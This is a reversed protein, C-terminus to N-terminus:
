DCRQTNLVTGIKLIHKQLKTQMIQLRFPIAVDTVHAGLVSKLESPLASYYKEYNTTAFSKANVTSTSNLSSAINVAEYFSKIKATAGEDSYLDFILIWTGAPVSEKSYVVKSEAITLSETEFGKKASTLDSEAYLAAKVAKVSEDLALNVNLSGNSEGFNALYLTFALNTTKGTEVTQKSLTGSYITSSFNGELYFDYKGAALSVSKEDNASWTKLTEYDSETDSSKYKLTLSEFATPNSPLATRQSIEALSIKVKGKENESQTSNESIDACAFLALASLGLLLKKIIKM